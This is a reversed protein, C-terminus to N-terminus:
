ERRFGCSVICSIIIIELLLCGSNESYRKLEREQANRDIVQERELSHLTRCPPFFFFDMFGSQLLSLSLVIFTSIFFLLITCISPSM